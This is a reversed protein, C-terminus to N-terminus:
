WKASILPPPNAAVEGPGRLRRIGKSGWFPSAICLKIKAAECVRFVQKSTTENKDILGLCVLPDGGAVALNQHILATRRDPAVRWLEEM